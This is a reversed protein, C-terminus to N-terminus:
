NKNESVLELRKNKTTQPFTSEGKYDNVLTTFVFYRQSEM